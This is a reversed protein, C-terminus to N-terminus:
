TISGSLRRPHQQKKIKQSAFGWELLNGDHADVRMESKGFLEGNVQYISTYAEVTLTPNEMRIEGKARISLKVALM